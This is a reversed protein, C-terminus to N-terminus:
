LSWSQLNRNIQHIIAPDDPPVESPWREVLEGKRDFLYKTFNWRPLYDPGRTEVIARFLPHAERGIVSYKMTMPFTIGFERDLFAQIDAEDSPEQNGFDNCPMGLVVLGSHSYDNHVKQLTTYQHTFGCESATNVLLVPQNQYRQMSLRAGDLGIFNYEHVNM